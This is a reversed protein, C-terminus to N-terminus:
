NDLIIFELLRVKVNDQKAMIIEDRKEPEACVDTSNERKEVVHKVSVSFKSTHGDDECNEQWACEGSTITGTLSEEDDAGDGATRPGLNLSESSVGKELMATTSDDDISFSTTSSEQM